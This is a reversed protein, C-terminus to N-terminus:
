KGTRIGVLWRWPFSKGASIEPQDNTRRDVVTHVAFGYSEMFAAVEDIPWINFYSKLNEAGPDLYSDTEYRIERREAFTSRVIIVRGAALLLPDLGQRYDPLGFLAILGFM